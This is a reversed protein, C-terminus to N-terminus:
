FHAIDEVSPIRMSRHLPSHSEAIFSNSFAENLCIDSQALPKSRPLILVVNLTSPVITESNCAVSQVVLIKFLATSDRVFSICRVNSFPVRMGVSGFLHPPVYKAAACPQY